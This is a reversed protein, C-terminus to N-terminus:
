SKEFELPHKFLTLLPRLKDSYADCLEAAWCISCAIAFGTFVKM